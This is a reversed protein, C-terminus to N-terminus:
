RFYNYGDRAELFEMSLSGDWRPWNESPSVLITKRPNHVGRRGGHAQRSSGMQISKEFSKVVKSGFIRRLENDANLYKPDVQLISPTCQKVLRDHTRTNAVRAKEADHQHSSSNGELSLTELIVDLPKEVRNTSSLSNEKNKKKKKKKSKHNSASVVNVSGKVERLVQEDNGVLTEDATESEDGQLWFSM